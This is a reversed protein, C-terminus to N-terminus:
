PEFNKGRLTPSIFINSFNIPAEKIYKKMVTTESFVLGITATYLLLLYLMLSDWRAIYANGIGVLLQWVHVIQCNLLNHLLRIKTSSEVTHAPIRSTPTWIQLSLDYSDQPARFVM